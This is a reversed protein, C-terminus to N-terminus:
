SDFSYNCMLYALFCSLILGQKRMEEEKMLSELASIPKSVGPKTALFSNPILAVKKVGENM